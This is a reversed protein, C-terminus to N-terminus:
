KYTRFNYNHNTSLNFQQFQPVPLAIKRKIQDNEFKICWHFTSRKSCCLMFYICIFVNYYINYWCWIHKFPEQTQIVDDKGQKIDCSLITM